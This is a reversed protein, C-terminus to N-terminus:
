NIIDVFDEKEIGKLMSAYSENVLNFIEKKTLSDDLM